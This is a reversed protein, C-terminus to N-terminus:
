VGSGGLQEIGALCKIHNLKKKEKLIEFNKQVDDESYNKPHYIHYVIAKNKISKWKVGSELLRWEIDADEGVGALIYDEDFGNVDILHKRMIGWNRGVLGRVKFSLPFFPSYIGDKIKGANSLLLSLFNLSKLSQEKILKESVEQGLFVARGSLFINSKLHKIYAKVFHQHPICDGDIFALKEQSAKMISKNLMANKRFGNDEKQCLHIIPFRYSQRHANLFDVTGPNVDDESIIVEFDMVSQHNLALLIVKLNEIAKYYSIIVTLGM